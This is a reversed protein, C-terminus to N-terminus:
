GSEKPHSQGNWARIFSSFDDQRPGRDCRLADEPLQFWSQASRTWIHAVPRLWSTDDLSAAEVIVLEPARSPSFLRTCCESCGQSSKHRGDALTVTYEAPRGDLLALSSRRVVLSLSFCSGSQRQCDTCHCAYLTLGADSLQYRVAGCLCGGPQPFAILRSEERFADRAPPPYDLRDAGPPNTVHLSEWRALRGAIPSLRARQRSEAKRGM